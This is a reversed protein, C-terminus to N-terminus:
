ATTEMARRLMRETMGEGLQCLRRFQKGIDYRMGGNLWAMVQGFCECQYFRIIVERDEAPIPLGGAAAAAYDEVVRRCIDMLCLEFLSRHASQNIHLVAQRHEQAFRAATELCDALSLSPGQAAIIADAQDMVLEELLAPIDKFHYYFTNRNVGCDQVLDKVSIERLPREELLRLFSSKLAERAPSTM